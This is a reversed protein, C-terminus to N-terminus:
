FSYHKHLTIEEGNMKLLSLWDTFKNGPIYIYKTSYLRNLFGEYLNLWENNIQAIVYVSMCNETKSHFNIGNSYM